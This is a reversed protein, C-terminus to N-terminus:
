RKMGAENDTHAGRLQSDGEKDDDKMDTTNDKVDFNDMPELDDKEDVPQKWHAESSARNPNSPGSTSDEAAYSIGLTSLPPWSPVMDYLVPSGDVYTANLLFDQLWASPPGGRTRGRLRRDVPTHDVSPVVRQARDDLIHPAKKDDQEPIIHKSPGDPQAPIAVFGRPARQAHGFRKDLGGADTRLQSKNTYEAQQDETSSGSNLDTGTHSGEVVAQTQENDRM